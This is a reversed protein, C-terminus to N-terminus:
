PLRNAVHEESLVMLINSTTSFVCVRTAVRAPDTERAGEGEEEEGEGEGERGGGKEEEGEGEPRTDDGRVSMFAWHPLNIPGM